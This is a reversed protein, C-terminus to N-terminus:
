LEAYGCKREAKYEKIRYLNFTRCQKIKDIEGDQLLAKVEAQAQFVTINCKESIKRYTVAIEGSNIKRKGIYYPKYAKLSLLYLYVKVGNTRKFLPRDIIERNITMSTM